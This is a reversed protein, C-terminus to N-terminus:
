HQLHNGPGAKVQSRSSHCDHAALKLFVLVVVATKEVYQIGLWGEFFKVPPNISERSFTDPTIWPCSLAPLLGNASIPLCVPALLLGEAPSATGLVM